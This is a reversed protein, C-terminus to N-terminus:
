ANWGALLSERSRARGSHWRAFPTRGARGADPALDAAPRTAPLPRRVRSAAARDASAGALQAVGADPDLAPSRGPPGAREPAAGPLHGLVRRPYRAPAGAPDRRACRGRW